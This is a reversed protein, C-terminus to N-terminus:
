RRFRLTRQEEVEQRDIEALHAAELRAKMEVSNRSLDVVVRAPAEDELADVTEDEHGVRLSRAGLGVDLRHVVQVLVELRVAVLEVLDRERDLVVFPVHRVDKRDRLEPRLDVRHAHRVELPRGDFSLANELSERAHTLQDDLGKGSTPRTDPLRPMVRGFMMVTARMRAHGTMKKSAIEGPIPARRHANM